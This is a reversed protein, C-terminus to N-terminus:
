TCVSPYLRVCPLECECICLPLGYIGVKEWLACYVCGELIELSFTAKYVIQLSSTWTVGLRLRKVLFPLNPYKGGCRNKSLTGIHELLM